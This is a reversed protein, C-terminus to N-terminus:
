MVPCYMILLNGIVAGSKVAYVAEDFHEDVSAGIFNIVPIIDKSRLYDIIRPTIKTPSDDITLIARSM